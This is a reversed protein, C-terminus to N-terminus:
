NGCGSCAAGPNSGGVERTFPGLILWHQITGFDSVPALAAADVAHRVGDVFSFRDSGTDSVEGNFSVLGSGAAVVKYTLTPVEAARDLKWTIVGDEFVGGNSIEGVEWDRPVREVITTAAAASCEGQQRLDTIALKM